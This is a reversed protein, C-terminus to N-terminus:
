GSWRLLGVSLPEGIEITHVLEHEAGDVIRLVDVVATTTRVTSAAAPVRALPVPRCAGVVLLALV